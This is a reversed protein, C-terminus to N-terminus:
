IGTLMPRVQMQTLISRQLEFIEGTLQKIRKLDPKKQKQLFQQTAQRTAIEHRLIKM